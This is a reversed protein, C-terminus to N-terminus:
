LGPGPVRVDPPPEADIPGALAEYAAMVDAWTGALRSEAPCTPCPGVAACDHGGEALRRVHVVADAPHDAIVLHWTGLREDADLAAFAAARVPSATANGKERILFPRDLHDAEDPQPPATDLWARAAEPTGPGWLHESPFATTERRADFNRISPEDDAARIVICQEVRQDCPISFQDPRMRIIFDGNASWGVVFVERTVPAPYLRGGPTRAGWLRNIIEGLDRIARASEVPSLLHHHTPHAVRNRFDVHLPELWRNRQGHLLGALRAWTLLDTLTGRFDISDSGDGVRLRRAKRHTGDRKNLADYVQDFNKASLPQPAGTKDALPIVGGYYTMFRTRLAQELVLRTLDHAATFLDYALLGYAHLLQLREFTDRVDAPVADAFSVDVARQQFEAAAEPRLMGGTAFGLPTFRLTREDPAQLDPLSQM